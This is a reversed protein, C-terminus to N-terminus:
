ATGGKWFVEGGASLHDNLDNGEGPVIAISVQAGGQQLQDRWRVAAREGASDNQQIVIVNRGDFLPLAGMHIPNAAGFMAVPIFDGCASAYHWAAIFDGTGEVMVIGTHDPLIPLASLGVPWAAWNGRIGMVKARDFWLGGDMRRVQVNCPNEVDLIAYAPQEYAVCFRLVGFRQMMAVGYTDPLNRLAAVKQFHREQGTYFVPPEPLERPLIIGAENPVPRASSIHREEETLPRGELIEAAATVDAAGELAMVLTFIDGGMGCKGFCHWLQKKVNVSFSEGNKENHIPCKCLLGGTASRVRNVKRRVYDELPHRAKIAAFDIM